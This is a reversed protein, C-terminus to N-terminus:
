RSANRLSVVVRVARYLAM